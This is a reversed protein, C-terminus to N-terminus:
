LVHQCRIWDKFSTTGHNTQYTLIAEREILRLYRIIDRLKFISILDINFKTKIREVTSLGDEGIDERDFIRVVIKPQYGFRHVINLVKAITEGTTVANDILIPIMAETQSLEINQEAKRPHVISLKISKGLGLGYEYIAEALPVGSNAIGICHVNQLNALQEINWTSEALYQFVHKQISQPLCVTYPTIRGNKFTTEGFQYIGYDFLCFASSTNM